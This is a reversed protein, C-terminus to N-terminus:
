SETIIGNGHLESAFRSHSEHHNFGESRNIVYTSM